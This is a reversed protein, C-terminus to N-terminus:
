ESGRALSRDWPDDPYDSGIHAHECSPVPECRLRCGAWRGLRASVPAVAQRRRGVVWLATAEVTVDLVLILVAFLLYTAGFSPASGASGIANRQPLYQVFSLIELGSAMFACTAASPWWTRRAHLGIPNPRSSMFSGEANDTTRM